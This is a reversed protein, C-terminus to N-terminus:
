NKEPPQIKPSVEKFTTTANQGITAIATIAVILTSDVNELFMPLPLSVVTQFRLTKGDDTAVAVNPFLHRTVMYANPLTDVDFKVGPVSSAVAGGILPALALLQHTAPRPDFVSLATFEKPLKDLTASVQKSPQWTALEGTARLIYGQVPQPYFGVVLWGKHIAYTPVIIFGPQQVHVTRLEVGHYMRQKFHMRSGTFKGLGQVARDLAVQLKKADKVQFLVTQGLIMPGEARSSYSVFMDGLTGLLDNRLNVGLVENVKQIGEKVSQGQDPPALKEVVELVADYIAGANLRMASFGTLDPPLAPLDKLTFPKGATLGMLGKRPGPAELTVLGRVAAGDFGVFFSLDKLGALGLDDIVKGAEASTSRTLKVLAALDVFGRAATPFEKFNHVRQFRPSDTLPKQTAIRKLAAAPTEDNMRFVIVADKDDVWCDIQLPPADIHHVTRVGVKIEKVELNEQMAVFRLAALLLNDKTGGNPLILTAQVDPMPQTGRIEVGLLLGQQAFAEGLKLADSNKDPLAAQLATKVSVIFDAFEGQVVKSLATKEFAAKHISSGDWRLYVQTDASILREPVDAARCLGPVLFVLLTLGWRHM